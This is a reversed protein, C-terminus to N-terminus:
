LNCPFLKTVIELEDFGIVVKLKVDEVRCEVCKIHISTLFYDKILKKVKSVNVNFGAKSMFLNM